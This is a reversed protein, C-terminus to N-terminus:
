AVRALTYTNRVRGKSKVANAVSTKLVGLYEAAYKQCLFTVELEKCYIPKWKSQAIKQIASKSQARGTAAKSLRERVEPKALARKLGEVRAQRIEADQWQMRALESRDVPTKIKKVHGGWRASSGRKDANLTKAREKFADTQAAERISTITKQRWEPNAWRAKADDSRKKCEEPSLTRPTGAGGSTRNLAPRLNLIFQKEASNLQEKDFAVFVEEVTFNEPGFRAIEFSV